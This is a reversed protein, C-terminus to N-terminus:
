LMSLINPLFMFHRYFCCARLLESSVYSAQYEKAQYLKPECFSPSSSSSFILQFFSPSPPFKRPSRPSRMPSPPSRRPSPPLRQPSPLSRRPLPPSRRPTPQWWLTMKVSQSPESVGVPHFNSFTISPIQQSVDSM